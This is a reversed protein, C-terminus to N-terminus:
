NVNRKEGFKESKESIKGFNSNGTPSKISFIMNTNIPLLITISPILTM